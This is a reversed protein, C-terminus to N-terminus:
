HLPWVRVLKKKAAYSSVQNRVKKKCTPCRWAPQELSTFTVNQELWGTVRFLWSIVHLTLWTSNWCGSSCTASQSSRCLVTCHSLEELCDKPAGCCGPFFLTFMNVTIHFYHQLSLECNCNFLCTYTQMCTIFVSGSGQQETTSPEWHSNFNCM